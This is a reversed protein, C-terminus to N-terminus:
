YFFLNVQYILFNIELIYTNNNPEDMRSFEWITEPNNPDDVWTGLIKEEFIVDTETYLPHVSM